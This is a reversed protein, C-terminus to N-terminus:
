GQEPTLALITFRHENPDAAMFCSKIASCAAPLLDEQKCPGHSVAAEKRGDLEYLIGGKEVFAVFHLDVKDEASPAETQGQSAFEAHANNLSEDSELAAARETASMDKTLAFFQEFFSGTRLALADAANVVSHLLAITGCANGITQRCFYPAPADASPAVASKAREADKELIAPSLPFLFVVAHRPAPVFALVDPDPSWVDSFCWGDPLGLARAFRTLVDPNSELPVWNSTRASDAM